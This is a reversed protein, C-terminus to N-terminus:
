TFLENRPREKMDGEMSDGTQVPNSSLWAEVDRCRYFISRGGPKRFFRHGQKAWRLNALAGESIGFIAEVERPRLFIPLPLDGRLDLTRTANISM